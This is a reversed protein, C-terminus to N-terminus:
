LWLDPSKSWGNCPDHLPKPFPSVSAEAEGLGACSEADM